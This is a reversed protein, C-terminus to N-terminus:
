RATSSLRRTGPALTAKWISTLPWLDGSVLHAPGGKSYLAIGDSTPSPFILDTISVQGDNVFLEVSSWDVFLRLRVRGGEITIPAEHRGTFKPNFSMDGSRTRDIFAISRKADIGIITEENIGTRVKLGAEAAARLDINAVIEVARDAAGGSAIPSNGVAIDRAALHRRTGRLQELEIVPRQALRYGNPTARLSLARPISQASRWPTTPVANAYDWNSMWGIWVRRKDGPPMASYSVAAYFDKGYDAWSPSDNPARTPDATFRTGDFRGVFYQTSSGGVAGGPNISAILVWRTVGPQGDVPLEFLDPCEWVGGTAGAPGFESMKIWRKLDSSSYLLVKHELPLAVVLVWKKQPAYWLVKPDRFDTLGIDLVPNGAYRKWTRGRDTSFAIAQAQ